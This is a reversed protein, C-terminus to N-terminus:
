DFRIIVEKSVCARGNKGLLMHDVRKNCKPCIGYDGEGSSVLEAGCIKHIVSMKVVEAKNYRNRM